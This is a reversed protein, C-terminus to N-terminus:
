RATTTATPTSISPSSTPCPSAGAPICDLFSLAVHRERSSAIACHGRLTSSKCSQVMRRLTRSVEFKLRNLEANGRIESFSSPRSILPLEDNRPCEDDNRPCQPYIARFGLLQPYTESSIADHNRPCGNQRRRSASMFELNRPCLNSTQRVFVRHKASALKVNRPCLDGYVM